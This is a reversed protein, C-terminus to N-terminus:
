TGTESRSMGVGNKRKGEFASRHLSPLLGIHPIVGESRSELFHTLRHFPSICGRMLGGSLPPAFRRTSNHLHNGTKARKDRQLAPRHRATKKKGPKSPM